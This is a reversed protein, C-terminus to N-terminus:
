QEIVDRQGQSTLITRENELLVKQYTRLIDSEGKKKNSDELKELHRNKTNKFTRDSTRYLNERFLTRFQESM